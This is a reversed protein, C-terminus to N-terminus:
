RCRGASSRTWPTPCGSAASSRPRLAPTPRARPPAISTPPSTASSAPGAASTVDAPCRRASRAARSRCRSRAGDGPPHPDRRRPDKGALVLLRQDGVCREIHVPVRRAQLDPREIAVIAPPCIAASTAIQQAPGSGSLCSLPRTVSVPADSSASSGAAARPPARRCARDRPATRHSRRCGQPSQRARQRPLAIEPDASELISRNSGPVNAAIAASSLRSSISGSASVGSTASASCCPRM